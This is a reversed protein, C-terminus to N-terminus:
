AGEPVGATGRRFRKGEGKYRIEIESICVDSGAGKVSLKGEVFSMSPHAVGTPSFPVWPTNIMETDTAYNGSMRARPATIGASEMQILELFKHDRESIDFPATVLEFDTTDPATYMGVLGNADDRFVNTPRTRIDGGLGSRTYVYCKVGDTIWYHEDIPDYSIVTKTQDLGSLYEEYGLNDPNNQEVRWSWLHGSNDIFIHRRDGVGVTRAGGTGFHCILDETFGGDESPSLVSIGNDGYIVMRAGLQHMSRINGARRVPIIGMDREEIAQWIVEELADYGDDGLLGIAASFARMPHDVAGGMRESWVVFNTGLSLADHVFTQGYTERWVDFVTAWRSQSFWSGSLGGAMLRYDHRGVSKVAISNEVYMDGDDLPLRYVLSQGNTAVWMDLFSVFQWPAGSTITGTGGARLNQTLASSVAFSDDVTKVWTPGLLVMGSDGCHLSPFPFNMTEGSLGGPKAIATPTVAGYPEPVLNQMSLCFPANMPPRRDRRLGNALMERLVFNSEKM